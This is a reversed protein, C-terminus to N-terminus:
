CIGACDDRYTAADHINPEISLQRRYVRHQACSRFFLDDNLTQGLEIRIAHAPNRQRGV